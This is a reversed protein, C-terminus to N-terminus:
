VSVDADEMIKNNSASETEDNFKSLVEDLVTFFKAHSPNNRAKVTEEPGFKEALSALYEHAVLAIYTVSDFEVGDKLQVRIVMDTEKDREEELMLKSATTVPRVIAESNIRTIKTHCFGLLHLSLAFYELSNSRSIAETCVTFKPYLELLFEIVQEAHRRLVEQGNPAKQLVALSALGNLVAQQVHGEPIPIDIEDANLYHDDTQCGASPGAPRERTSTLKRGATNPSKPTKLLEKLGECLSPVFETECFSGYNKTLQALKEEKDAAIESSSSAPVNGANNESKRVDDDDEQDDPTLCELFTFFLMIVNGLLLANRSSSMIFNACGLFSSSQILDKWKKVQAVTKLYWVIRRLVSFVQILISVDTVKSSLYVVREVLQLSSDHVTFDEIISPESIVNALIGLAIETLRNCCSRDLTDRIFSFIKNEVLFKMVDTEASMDWLLSMQEEFDRELRQNKSETQEVENELLEENSYKPIEEVWKMLIKLVHRESYVTTGIRDGRFAEETEDCEEADSVMPNCTAEEDEDSVGDDKKMAKHGAQDPVDEEEEPQEDDENNTYPGKRKVSQRTELVADEVSNAAGSSAANGQSTEEIRETEENEDGEDEAGSAYDPLDPYPVLTASGSSNALSESREGSAQSPVTSQSQELQAGVDNALGEAQESQNSMSTISPHHSEFSTDCTVSVPPEGDSLSNSTGSREEEFNRSRNPGVEVSSNGSESSEGGQPVLINESNSATVPPVGGLNSGNGNNNSETTRDREGEGGSPSINQQSLNIFNEHVIHRVAVTGGYFQVDGRGQNEGDGGAESNEETNNENNDNDGYFNNVHVHPNREDVLELELEVEPLFIPEVDTDSIESDSDSDTDLYIIGSESINRPRGRLNKM